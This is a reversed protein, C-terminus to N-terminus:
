YYYYYSRKASIFLWSISSIKNKIKELKIIYEIEQEISYKDSKGWANILRLNLRKLGKSIMLILSCRLWISTRGWLGIWLPGVLLIQIAKGGDICKTLLVFTTVQFMNKGVLFCKLEIQTSRMNTWWDSSISGM